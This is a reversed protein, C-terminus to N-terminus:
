VAVKKKKDKKTKIKDGTLSDISVTAASKHSAKTKSIPTEVVDVDMADTNRVASKAASKPTSRVSPEKAPTSEIDVDMEDSTNRQKRSKKASKADPSPAEPKSKSSESAASFGPKPKENESEASTDSLDVIPETTTKDKTVGTTPQDPIQPKNVPVGYPVYRAKLNEPQKRPLKNSGTQTAFFTLRGTESSDSNTTKSGNRPTEPQDNPTKALERIHFARSVGVSAPTYEATAKNPVLAAAGNIDARTMTYSIDKYELIPGGNLVKSLDISQIKSLPVNAPATIHWIQKGELNNFIASSRDPKGSAAPTVAAYGQPPAYRSAEVRRVM